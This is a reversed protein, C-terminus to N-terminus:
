AADSGPPKSALLASYFARRWDAILDAFAEGDCGRGDAPLAPALWDGSLEIISTFVALASAGLAAEEEAACLLTGLVGEQFIMRRADPEIDAAATILAAVSHSHPFTKRALDILWDDADLVSGIEIRVHLSALARAGANLVDCKGQAGLMRYLRGLMDVDDDTGAM